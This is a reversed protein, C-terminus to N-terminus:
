SEELPPGFYPMRGLIDDPWDQARHWYAMTHGTRAIRGKRARREYGLAKLDECLALQRVQDFEVPDGGLNAWVMVPYVIQSGALVRRLIARRHGENSPLIV